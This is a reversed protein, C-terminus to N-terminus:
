KAERKKADISGCDRRALVNTEHKRLGPVLDRRPPFWISCTINVFKSKTELYNRRVALVSHENCDDVVNM